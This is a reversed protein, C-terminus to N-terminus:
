PKAELIPLDPLEITKRPDVPQLCQFWNPRGENGPMVKAFAIPITDLYPLLVATRHRGSIFQTKGSIFMVTPLEFWLAGNKRTIWKPYYAANTNIVERCKLDDLDFHECFARKPVWFPEDGAAVMIPFCRM